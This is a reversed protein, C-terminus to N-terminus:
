NSQPIAARHRDSKTDLRNVGMVCVKDARQHCGSGLAPPLPLPLSTLGAQSRPLGPLPPVQETEDNREGHDTATRQRCRPRGDVPAESRQPQGRRPARPQRGISCDPAGRRRRGGGGSGVRLRDDKPDDADSRDWVDTRYQSMCLCAPTTLLRTRCKM